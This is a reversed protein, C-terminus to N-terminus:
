AARQFILPVQQSTSDRYPVANEALVIKIKLVNMPLEGLKDRFVTPFEKMIGSTLEKSMTASIRAPLSPSIVELPQLDHWAVLISDGSSDSAVLASTEYRIGKYSLCVNSEGIINIGHGTLSVM